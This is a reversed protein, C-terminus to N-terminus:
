HEWSTYYNSRASSCHYSRRHTQVSPGGTSIHRGNLGPSKRSEDGRKKNDRMQIRKTVHSRDASEVIAEVVTLIM